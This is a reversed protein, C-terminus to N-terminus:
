RELRCWHTAQVGMNFGGSGDVTFQATNKQGGLEGISFYDLEKFSGLLVKTPKQPIVDTIKIWNM